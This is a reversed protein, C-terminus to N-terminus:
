VELTSLGEKKEFMMKEVLHAGNRIFISFTQLM